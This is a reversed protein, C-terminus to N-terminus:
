NAGSAVIGHFYDITQVLGERLPVTVDWGLDSKARAIDPQGLVTGVNGRTGTFVNDVCLLQHGAELLRACLHSGIFGAGGTVLVSMKALYRVPCVASTM